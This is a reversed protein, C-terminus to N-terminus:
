RASRPNTSLRMTTCCSIVGSRAAAKSGGAPDPLAAGAPFVSPGMASLRRGFVGRGVAAGDTRIRDGACLLQRLRIRGRGAVARPGPRARAAGARRDGAHVQRYFLRAAARPSPRAAMGFMRCGAARESRAVAQHRQKETGRRVRWIPRALVLLGCGEVLVKEGDLFDPARM